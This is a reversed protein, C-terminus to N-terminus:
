ICNSYKGQYGEYVAYVDCGKSIGYRVVARVAANMGPADGGSTLVGIKRAHIPLQTADDTVSRQPTDILHAPAPKDTFVILNEM